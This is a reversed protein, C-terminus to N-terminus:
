AFLVTHEIRVWVWEVHISWCRVLYLWLSLYCHNCKFSFIWGINTLINLSKLKHSFDCFLCVIHWKALLDLVKLLVFFNLKKLLLFLLLAFLSANQKVLSRLVTEFLAIMLLDAIMHRLEHNATMSYTFTMDNTEIKM